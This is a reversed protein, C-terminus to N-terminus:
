AGLRRCITEVSVIDQLATNIGSAGYDKIHCHNPLFNYFPAVRHLVTQGSIFDLCVCEGLYEYVERLNSLSVRMTCRIVVGV